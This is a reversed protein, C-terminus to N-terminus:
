CKTNDYTRGFTIHLKWDSKFGFEKRIDILEPCDVEVIFFKGPADGVARAHGIKFDGVHDYKFTIKKGHYKKWLHMRDPYPKEGRIISIHADWSPQKLNDDEIALPNGIKNIWHRYYRTIERDVEVICWWQTRKKMGGRHPDYVITGTSTYM